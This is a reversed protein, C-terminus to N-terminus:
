RRVKKDEELLAGLTYMFDDSLGSAQSSPMARLAMAFDRPVVTKGSGQYCKILADMTRMRVDDSKGLQGRAAIVDMVDATIKAPSERYGLYAFGFMMKYMKQTFRISPLEGTARFIARCIEVADRGTLGHHDITDVSAQECSTLRAEEAGLALTSAGLSTAALFLLQLITLRALIMSNESTSFEHLAPGMRTGLCHPVIPQMLMSLRKVYFLIQIREKHRTLRKRDKAFNTWSVNKNKKSM